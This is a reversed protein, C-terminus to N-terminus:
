SGHNYSTEGAADLIKFGLSKVIPTRDPYKKATPM